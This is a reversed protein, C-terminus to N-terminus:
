GQKQESDQTRGTVIDVGLHDWVDERLTGYGCGYDNRIRSCPVCTHFTSGEGGWVGFTNEYKDGPNITVGCECCKYAKRATVIKENLVSAVLDVDIECARTCEM